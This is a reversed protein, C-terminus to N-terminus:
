GGQHRWTVPVESGGSAASVGSSSSWTPRQACLPDSISQGQVACGPQPRSALVSWVTMLPVDLSGPPGLPPMWAWQRPSWSAGRCHVKKTSPSRLSPCSVSLPVRSGWPGERGKEEAIASTHCRTLTSPQLKKATSWGDWTEKWASPGLERVMAEGVGATQVPCPPRSPM